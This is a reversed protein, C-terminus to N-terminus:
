SQAYRHTARDDRAINTARALDGSLALYGSVLREPRDPAERRLDDWRERTAVLTARPVGAKSARAYAKRLGRDAAMVDAHSCSQGDARGPCGKARPEVRQVVPKVSPRAAPKAAKAVRVEAPTELEEVVLEAPTPAAHVTRRLASVVPRVNGTATPTVALVAQDAEAPSTSTVSAKPALYIGASVGVLMAAALGGVKSLRPTRSVVSPTMPVERSRVPEPASVGLGEPGFVQALDEAVRDALWSGSPVRFLDSPSLKAM